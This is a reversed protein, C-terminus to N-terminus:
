RNIELRGSSDPTLFFGDITKTAQDLIGGIKYKSGTALDTFSGGVVGSSTNIKLSLGAASGFLTGPMVFGVAGFEDGGSWQLSFPANWKWGVPLV